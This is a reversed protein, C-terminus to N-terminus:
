NNQTHLLISLGSVVFINFFRFKAWLHPLKCTANQVETEARYPGSLTVVKVKYIKSPSLNGFVVQQTTTQSVNHILVLNEYIAIEYGSVAGSPAAWNVTMSSTTGIASLGTAEGVEAFNLM